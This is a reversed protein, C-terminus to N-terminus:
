SRPRIHGSSEGSMIAAFCVEIYFAGSSPLWDSLAVFDAFIVITIIIESHTQGGQQVILLKGVPISRRGRTVSWAADIRASSWSFSLLTLWGHFWRPLLLTSPMFPQVSCAYMCVYTVGRPIRHLRRAGHLSLDLLAPFEALWPIISTISHQTSHM